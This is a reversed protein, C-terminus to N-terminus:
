VCSGPCGSSGRCAAWRPSGLLIGSHTTGEEVASVLQRRLQGGEQGTARRAVSPAKGVTKVQIEGSTSRDRGRVHPWDWQIPASYTDGWNVQSKRPSVEERFIALM